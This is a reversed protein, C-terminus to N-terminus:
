ALSTQQPEFFEMALQVFKNDYGPVINNHKNHAARKMLAAMVKQSRRRGHRVTSVHNPTVGTEKAVSVVDGMVLYKELTQFLPKEHPYIQLPTNAIGAELDMWRMVLKARVEDNFKAVVYLCEEKSLDYMPRKEGKSDEYEVLAFSRGNIKNWAVEQSRISRLLDKHNKGSIEAIELSTIRHENKSQAPRESEKSM